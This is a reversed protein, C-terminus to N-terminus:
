VDTEERQSTILHIFYDHDTEKLVGITILTLGSLVCRRTTVLAWKEHLGHVYSRCYEPCKQHTATLSLTQVDGSEFGSRRNWTIDLKKCEQKRDPLCQTLIKPRFLARKKQRPLVQFYATGAVERLTKDNMMRRQMTWATTLTRLHDIFITPRFISLRLRDTRVTIYRTENDNVYIPCYTLVTKM